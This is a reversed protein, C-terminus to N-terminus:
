RGKALSSKEPWYRDAADEAIALGLRAAENIVEDALDACGQRLTASTRVYACPHCQVGAFQPTSRAGAPLVSYM